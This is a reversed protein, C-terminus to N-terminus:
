PPTPRIPSQAPNEAPWSEELAARVEAVDPHTEPLTSQRIRLAQEFNTRAAEPDGAAHLTRALGYAASAVDPSESGRLEAALGIARRYAATARELDGHRRHVEGLNNLTWAILIRESGSLQEAIELAKEHLARAQSLDGEDRAIEALGNYCWAIRPHGDYLVRLRIELSRELHEKGTALNRLQHHINGLEGLHDAIAAEDDTTTAITLARNQITLAAAFDRQALLVGGLLGLSPLLGSSTSGLQDEDAALARELLRRANTLDGRVWLYYAIGRLLAPDAAHDLASLAHPLLRECVTWHVDHDVDGPFAAAVLATAASAYERRDQDSLRKRVLLQVLRHIRAGDGDLKLLATGRVAAIADRLDLEDSASRALAEPLVDRHELLLDVPIDDPALFACLRLLDAGAPSVDEVRAFGLEWVTDVTGQYGVVDGRALVDEHRRRFLRLYGDLDMGSQEVYSAVQELALPLDGLVACLADAGATTGTRTRVFELAEARTFVEIERVTALRRWAGSRSTIIVHGGTPRYPEIDAPREANDFVLLWDTRRGLADLAWAVAKEQTLNADLGLREALRALSSRITVAREAPIWWVLGYGDRYRHAYEIALQTKGAGGLGCLAQAAGECLGTNISELLRGRGTFVPNRAPLDAAQVRTEDVAPRVVYTIKDRGVVDGTTEIRVDRGATIGSDKATVDPEEATV